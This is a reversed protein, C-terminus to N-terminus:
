NVRVIWDPHEHCKILINNLFNLAGYYDGWGNKPNLKKMEESNEMMYKIMIELIWIISSALKNDLHRIISDTSISIPKAAYFMPAVNSTYNDVDEEYRGHIPCRCTTCELTIDWGM